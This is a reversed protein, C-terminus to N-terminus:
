EEVNSKAGDRRYPNIEKTTHEPIEKMKTLKSKLNDVENSYTRNDDELLRISNLMETNIEQLHKIEKQLEDTKNKIEEQLLKNNKSM